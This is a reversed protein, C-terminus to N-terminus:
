EILPHCKFTEGNLSAKAEKYFNELKNDLLVNVGKAGDTVKKAWEFYEIVRQKSCDVPVQRTIDNLNYLKDALKVLKAKDSKNPTTVIQLRKREWRPLAEDDTCEEVIYAVEKGFKKELEDFTTNTDEVTDHLAAAQLTAIDYVGADALNKVVGIPHNIYPTGDLDKRKQKSHKIAAFDIADILGKLAIDPQTTPIPNNSM